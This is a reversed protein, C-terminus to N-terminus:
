ILWYTLTYDEPKQQAKTTSTTLGWTSRHSVTQHNLHYECGCIQDSSTLCSTQMCLNFGPQLACKWCLIFHFNANYKNRHQCVHDQSHLIKTKFEVCQLILAVWNNKIIAKPFTAKERSFSDEQSISSLKCEDWATRNYLSINLRDELHPKLKIKLCVQSLFASDCVLSTINLLSCCHGPLSLQTLQLKCPQRHEDIWTGYM